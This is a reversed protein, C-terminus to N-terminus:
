IEVHGGWGWDCLAWLNQQQGRWKEGWLSDNEKRKKGGHSSTKRWPLTLMLCVELGTRQLMFALYVLFKCPYQFQYSLVGVTFGVALHVCRREGSTLLVRLNENTCPPTSELSDQFFLAFKRETRLRACNCTCTVHCDHSCPLPKHGVMLKTTQIKDTELCPSHWHSITIM